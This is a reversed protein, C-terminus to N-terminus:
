RRGGGGGGGGGSRDPRKPPPAKFPAELLAEFAADDPQRPENLRQLYTKLALRAPAVQQGKMSVSRALADKAKEVREKRRAKEEESREVKPKDRTAPATAAVEDATTLKVRIAV